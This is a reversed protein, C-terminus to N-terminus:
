QDAAIAAFEATFDESAPGIGLQERCYTVFRFASRYLIPELERLTNFHEAIAEYDTEYAPAALNRASRCLQWEAASELVGIKEHFAIVKLFTEAPESALIMSHRMAAAHM